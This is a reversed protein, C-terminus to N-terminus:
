PAILARNKTDTSARALERAAARADRGLQHMYQRVDKIDTVANM